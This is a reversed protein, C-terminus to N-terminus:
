RRCGAKLAVPHLITAPHELILLATQTVHENVSLLTLLILM